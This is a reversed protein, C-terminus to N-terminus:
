LSLPAGMDKFIVKMRFIGLYLRWGPGPGQLDSKSAWLESLREMHGIPM